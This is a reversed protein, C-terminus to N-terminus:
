HDCINSGLELEGSLYQKILVEPELMPAGVVVSIGNEKFLTQARRGMGGAVIVDAGQERLWNPLVGPAHPPPTAAEISKIKGNEVDFLIFQQCHGFHACLQGNVTPIAIKM